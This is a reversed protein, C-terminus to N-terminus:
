EKRRLWSARFRRAGRVAARVVVEYRHVTYYIVFNGEVLFRARRYDPCVEGLYPFTALLAVRSDLRDPFRAATQPADAAIRDIIDLVDQRAAVHWRVPKLQRSM